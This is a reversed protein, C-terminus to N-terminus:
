NGYSARLEYKIVPKGALDIKGVADFGLWEMWKKSIFFEDDVFGTLVGYDKKIKSIFMKSERLFQMKHSDILTSTVLWIKGAGLAGDQYVGWIAAPIDDVLATWATGAQIAQYLFEDVRVGLRDAASQEAERVCIHEAHWAEAPVIM